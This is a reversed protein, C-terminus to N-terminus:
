SCGVGAAKRVADSWDSLKHWAGCACPGQLMDHFIGSPSKGPPFAVLPLAAPIGATLRVIAPKSFDISTWVNCAPCHGDDYALNGCKGCFNGNTM